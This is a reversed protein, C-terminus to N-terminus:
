YVVEIAKIKKYYIKGETLVLIPVRINIAKSWQKKM